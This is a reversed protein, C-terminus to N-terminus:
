RNWLGSSTGFLAKYLEQKKLLKNADFQRKVSEMVAKKNYDNLYKAGVIALVGVAIGAGVKIYKSKSSSTKKVTSVSGKKKGWHMGLIGFHELEENTM